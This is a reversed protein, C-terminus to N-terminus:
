RQYKRRKYKILGIMAMIVFILCAVAAVTVLLFLLLKQQNSSTTTITTSTTTITTSTTTITPVYVLTTFAVNSPKGQNGDSDIARISFAQTGNSLTTNLRVVVMERSGSIQPSSLNGVILDDNTVRSTNDVNDYLEDVDTSMRLDYEQVIGRDYDDGVATWGLRITRNDYSQEEIKLDSIRSPPYIDKPNTGPPPGGDVDFAGGSSSRTFLDAPVTTTHVGQLDPKMPLAGSLKEYSKVMATGDTNKVNIKVGYRCTTSCSSFDLFYASYVGDNKIVDGGAGNDLLTIVVQGSPTDVTATVHAGIVPSYGKKVEARVVLQPDVDYNLTTKSLRGVVRIPEVDEYQMRSELIIKINDSTGISNYIIYKWMGAEAIGQIEIAVRRQEVNVVYGNYYKDIWAGTPSLLAVDLVTNPFIFSFLTRNGLSSDLFLTDNYTMESTTLSIVSSSLTIPIADSNGLPNENITAALSDIFATSNDDEPVYNYLGGTNSSLQQLTSQAAETFAITDVRVGSDYVEQMVNMLFPYTNEVGDTILLLSAGESTVNGDQLVQLALRVGGGISTAGDAEQPVKSSVESRQYGYKLETMSALIVAYSSFGVIGVFSGDEIRNEIFYTASQYLRQIRDGDMSGSTDLVLVVRRVGSRKIIFNPTTDDIIRTPNNGDKFDTNELMVGWASQGECIINQRNPAMRNHFSYM